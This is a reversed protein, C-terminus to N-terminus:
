LLNVNKLKKKIAAKNQLTVYCPIGNAYPPYAEGTILPQLYQRCAETIGYGDESIFERPMKREVNAVKELPVSEIHWQYPLNSDRVITLMVGNKGAIAYEVAAKGLAYDHDLDTQSAIHRASRQLYDAIAYHYKLGLKQKILSAIVPAVGGLQAHGFADKLGCDSLFEGNHNRVGESVVITCYGQNKVAQDVKALFKTEDFVIEPFLIIHPPGDTKRSAMGASAAIWGAHRGMVELIFIKTSTACM